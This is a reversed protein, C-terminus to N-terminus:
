WFIGPTIEAVTPLLDEAVSAPVISEKGISILATSEVVNARVAMQFSCFEDWDSEVRM